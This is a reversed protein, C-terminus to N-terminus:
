CGRDASVGGRDGAGILAVRGSKGTRAPWNKPPVCGGVRVPGAHGGGQTATRRRDPVRMGQKRRFRIIIHATIRRTMRCMPYGYATLRQKRTSGVRDCM